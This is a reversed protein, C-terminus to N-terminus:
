CSFGKILALSMLVCSLVCLSPHLGQQLCGPVRPRLSYLHLIETWGAGGLWHPPGLGQAWPLALVPGSVRCQEWHGGATGPCGWWLNTMCGHLLCLRGNQLLFSALDLMAEPWLMATPAPSAERLEAQPQM